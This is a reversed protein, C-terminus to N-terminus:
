LLVIENMLERLSIATVGHAMPYKETGNYVVFVRRPQLDECGVYFGKELKPARTRKIEIAWLENNPLKLLLDIEVGGSTRYFYAEGFAPMVSLINEIVFGEWSKGVV